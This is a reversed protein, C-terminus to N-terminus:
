SMYGRNHIYVLGRYQSPSSKASHLARDTTSVTPLHPGTRFYNANPFSGDLVSSAMFYEFDFVGDFAVSVSCLSSIKIM